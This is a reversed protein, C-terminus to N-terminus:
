IKINWKQIIKNICKFNYKSDRSKFTEVSIHHRKLRM